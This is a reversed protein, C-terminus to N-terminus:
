SWPGVKRFALTGIKAVYPHKNLDPATALGKVPVRIGEAVNSLAEADLRPYAALANEGVLQRVPEIPLDHYTFALSLKTM